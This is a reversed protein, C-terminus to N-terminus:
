SLSVKDWDVVLNARLITSVPVQWDGFPTSMMLRSEGEVNVVKELRGRGKRAPGVREYLHLALEQGVAREFECVKRLPREIGPSSIELNYNSPIWQDLDLKEELSRSVQACDDVSVSSSERDIFIQLTQDHARWQTEICVFGDAAITANVNTLIDDLTKRDL